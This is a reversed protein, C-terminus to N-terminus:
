DGSGHQAEQPQEVIDYLIQAVEDGQGVLELGSKERRTPESIFVTDKVVSYPFRLVKHAVGLLAADVSKTGNVDCVNSAVGNVRARGSQTHLNRMLFHNPIGLTTYSHLPSLNWCTLCRETGSFRVENENWIDFKAKTTTPGVTEQRLDSGCLSLALNTDVAVDPAEHSLGELVSGVTRFQFQLRGPCPDYEYGDLDLRGPVVQSDMCQGSDLNFALCNPPEGGHVAQRTQFAWAKYEWGSFDDYDLILAAGTLHNWRVEHGDRNVAWGLIYGRIVRGGPNDPDPDPRGPPTGPDLIALSSVGVPQGTAASWYLPQNATLPVQVDVWNWGPHARETVCGAVETCLGGHILYCEPLCQAATPADGNVFYFQVDIDEPFDNSIELFTDQRVDGAANWKVEVQPFFLLSGKQTIDSRGHASIPEVASATQVAALVLGCVWAAVAGCAPRRYVGPRSRRPAGREARARNGAPESCPRGELRDPRRQHCVEPRSM